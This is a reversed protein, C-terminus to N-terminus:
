LAFQRRGYYAAFLNILEDLKRLNESHPAYFTIIPGPNWATHDISVGNFDYRIRYKSGDTVSFRPVGTSNRRAEASLRELTTDIENQVDFSAISLADLKKLLAEDGFSGAGAIGIIEGEVLNYGMISPGYEGPRGEKYYYFIGTPKKPGNSGDSNRQMSWELVEVSFIVKGQFQQPFALPSIACLALLFSWIRVRAGLM